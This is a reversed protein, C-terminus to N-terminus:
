TVVSNSVVTNLYTIRKFSDRQQEDNYLITVVLLLLRISDQLTANFKWQCTNTSHALAHDVALFIQIEVYSKWAKQSQENLSKFKNMQKSVSFSVTRISFMNITEEFARFFAKLIFKQPQANFQEWINSTTQLYGCCIAANTSGNEDMVTTSCFLDFSNKSHRKTGVFGIQIMSCCYTETHQFLKM